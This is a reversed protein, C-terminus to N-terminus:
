WVSQHHSVLKELLAADSRKTRRLMKERFTRGPAVRRGVVFVKIVDIVDFYETANIM